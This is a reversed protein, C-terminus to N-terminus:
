AIAVAPGIDQAASAATIIVVVNVFLADDELTVVICSRCVNLLLQTLVQKGIPKHSSLIFALKNIGPSLSQISGPGFLSEVARQMSVCRPCRPLKDHRQLLDQTLPQHM